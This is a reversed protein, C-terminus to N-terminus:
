RSGAPRFGIEALAQDLSGEGWSEVIRGDRFRFADRRAATRGSSGGHGPGDVLVLTRQRALRDRVRDWQHSAM